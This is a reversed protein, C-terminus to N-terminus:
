NLQVDMDQNEVPKALTLPVLFEEIIRVLDIDASIESIEKDIKSLFEFNKFHKADDLGFRELNLRWRCTSLWNFSERCKSVDLHREERMNFCINVSVWKDTLKKDVEEFKAELKAIRDDAAFIFSTLLMFSFFALRRTFFSNEM